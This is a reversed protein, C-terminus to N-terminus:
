NGWGVVFPQDLDMESDKQKQDMGHQRGDKNRVLRTNDRIRSKAMGMQGRRGRFRLYVCECTYVCVGRQFCLQLDGRCQCDGVKSQDISV